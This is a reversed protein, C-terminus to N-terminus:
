QVYLHTFLHVDSQSDGEEGGYDEELGGLLCLFQM